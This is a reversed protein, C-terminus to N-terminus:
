EKKEDTDGQKDGIVVMCEKVMNLSDILVGISVPNHFELNVVPTLVAGDPVVEGVVLKKDISMIQVTGINKEKDHGVFFSKSGDFVISNLCKMDAGMRGCNSCILEYGKETKTKVFRHDYGIKCEM